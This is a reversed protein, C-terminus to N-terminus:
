ASKVNPLVLLLHCCGDGDPVLVWAGVGIRQIRVAADTHNAGRDGDNFSVGCAVM